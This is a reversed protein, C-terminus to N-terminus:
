EFSSQFPPAQRGIGRTLALVPIGSSLLWTIDGLDDWQNHTRREVGPKPPLTGRLYFRFNLVYITLGVNGAKLRGNVQNVRAALLPDVSTKKPPHAPVALDGKWAGEWTKHGSLTNNTKM